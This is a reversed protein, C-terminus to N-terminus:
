AAAALLARAISRGADDDRWEFCRVMISHRARDIRSLIRQYAVKGGALLEFTPSDAPSAVPLSTLSMPGRVKAYAMRVRLRPQARAQRAPRECGPSRALGPATGPMFPANRRPISR